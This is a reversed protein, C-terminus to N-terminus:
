AAPGACAPPHADIESELIRFYDADARSSNRSRQESESRSLSAGAEDWAEAQLLSGDRFLESSRKAGSPWWSRKLGDALDLKYEVELKPRGAAEPFALESYWLRITGSKADNSYPIEALKTGGTSYFTFVGHKKGDVFSGTAVVPGDIVQLEYSGHRIGDRCDGLGVQRVGPSVCGGLMVM